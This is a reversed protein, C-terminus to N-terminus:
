YSKWVSYLSSAVCTSVAGGVAGLATTAIDFPGSLLGVAAGGTGGAVGGIAAGQLCAKIPKPVSSGHEVGCEFTYVARGAARICMTEVGSKSKGTLKRCQARHTACFLCAGRTCGRPMAPGLVGGGGGIRPRTAAVATASGVTCVEVHNATGVNRTKVVSSSGPCTAATARGGSLALMAVVVAIGLGCVRVLRSV